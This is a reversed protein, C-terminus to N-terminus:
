RNYDRQAIIPKGITEKVSKKYPRETFVPPQDNVDTVTIILSTVAFFNLKAYPDDRAQVILMTRLLIMLLFVM